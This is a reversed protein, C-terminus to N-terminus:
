ARAQAGVSDWEGSDLLLARGRDAIKHWNSLGTGSYGFVKGVALRAQKYDLAPNERMMAMIHRGALLARVEGLPSDNHHLVGCFKFLDVDGFVEALRLLGDRAAPGPATPLEYDAPIVRQKRKTPM